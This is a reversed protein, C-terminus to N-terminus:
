LPEMNIDRLTGSPHYTEFKRVNCSRCIGGSCLYHAQLKCAVNSCRVWETERADQEENDMDFPLVPDTKWCVSCISPDKKPKLALNRKQPRDQRSAKKRIPLKSHHMTQRATKRPAQNDRRLPLSSDASSGPIGSNAEEVLKLVKRMEDLNEPNRKMKRMKQSLNEIVENFTNYLKESEREVASPFDPINFSQYHPTSINRFPEFDPDEDEFQVDDAVFSKTFKIVLHVHKCAIGSLQVLCSCTFRYSCAGCDCHCNENQFSSCGVLDTVKYADSKSRKIVEYQGDENRHIDYNAMSTLDRAPGRAPGPRAPGPAPGPRFIKKAPGARGTVLIYNASQAEAIQCNRLNRARRASAKKLGRGVQKSIKRIVWFFSDLLVQLLEDVRINTKFNLREKKLASHWSESFMSTQFPAGRRYCNACLESKELYIRRLYDAFVHGKGSKENELFDLFTTMKAKFTIVEPERIIEAMTAKVTSAIEKQLIEDAKTGIAKLVHWRCWIRQTSNNPFVEVYGNWFANAEDSMMYQPHFEPIEKRICQFLKAVDDHTVTSSILFGVPIGRDQGNLILMTTLKLAYKTANHTDDICIGRSGYKECLEKQAPTMVVLRFGAGNEDPAEYLFIGDEQWGREVRLDDPVLFGLKTNQGYKKDCKEIIQANSFGERIMGLLYDIKEGNFARHGPFKEHGYHEFYAVVDIKGTDKYEKKKLFAPCLKSGTLKKSPGVLLEKAGSNYFGEHKCSRYSSVLGGNDRSNRITWSSCTDEERTRLWNKPPPAQSPPSSSLTIDAPNILPKPHKRRIHTELGDKTAVIHSCQGCVFAGSGHTQLAKDVMVRKKFENVDDDNMKHAVKLHRCANYVTKTTFSCKPCSILYDM